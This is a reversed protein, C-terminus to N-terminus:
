LTLSFCVLYNDNYVVNEKYHQIILGLILRWLEMEANYFKAMKSALFLYPFRTTLLKEHM